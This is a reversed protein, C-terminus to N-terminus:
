AGVKGVTPAQTNVEMKVKSNVQLKKLGREGVGNPTLSKEGWRMIMDRENLRQKRMRISNVAADKEVIRVDHIMFSLGDHKSCGETGWAKSRIGNRIKGEYQVLRPLIIIDVFVDKLLKFEKMSPYQPAYPDELLKLAKEDVDEPWVTPIRFDHILAAVIDSDDTYIESGWLPPRNIIKARYEKTLYRYPIKITLVCNEKGNPDDKYSPIVTDKGDETPPHYLRQGLHKRPYQAASEIVKENKIFLQPAKRVPRAVVTNRAHPSAPRKQPPLSEIETPYPINDEKPHHHHHHHHPVAHHHHHHAKRRKDAKEPKEKGVPQPIPYEVQYGIKDALDDRERKGLSLPSSATIGKRESISRRDGAIRNYLADEARGNGDHQQVQPGEPYVVRRRDNEHMAPFSNTVSFPSPPVAATYAAFGQGPHSSTPTTNSTHSSSSQPIGYSGSPAIQMPHGGVPMPPPPSPQTLSNGGPGLMPNHAHQYQVERSQAHQPQPAHQAYHPHQHINPPQQPVVHPPPQQRQQQQLAAQHQRRQEEQLQLQQQQQQHHLQQQHQHQRQQQEQEAHLRMQQEHQQQRQQEQTLGQPHGHHHTMHPPGYQVYPNQPHQPLPEPRDRYNEKKIYAERQRERDMQHQREIQARREMERREYEREREMRELNQRELSQRELDRREMEMRRDRDYQETRQTLRPEEPQQNLISPLSGAASSPQSPPRSPAQPRQYQDRGGMVASNLRQQAGYLSDSSQMFPSPSPRTTPTKLPLGRPQDMPSMKITREDPYQRPPGPYDPTYPRKGPSYDHPAPPRGQAPQNPPMSPHSSPPPQTQSPSDIMSSISMGNRSVLASIPPLERSNQPPPGYRDPGPQSPPMSLPPPPQSSRQSLPGHHPSSPPPMGQHPQSHQQQQQQQQQQQPHPMTMERRDHQSSHRSHQHHPPLQQGPHPHTAHAAPPPPPPPQQQPQLPPHGNSRYVRPSNSLSSVRSHSHHDPTGSRPGTGYASQPPPGNNGPGGIFPSSRRDLENRPTHQQSPQPPPPPPLQQQMQPHPQLPVPGRYGNPELPPRREGEHVPRYHADPPPPHGYEQRPPAAIQNHHMYQAQPESLPRQQPVPPAQQQQQHHPPPPGQQHHPPPHPHSLPPPAYQPHQPHPQSSQHPPPQQHPPLQSPHPQYAAERAPPPAERRLRKSPGMEQEQQLREREYERPYLHHPPPPHSQSPHIPPPGQLQHSQQQQQQQQQHPHPHPHPHQGYPGQVPSEPRRGSGHYRPDM